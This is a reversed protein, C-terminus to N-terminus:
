TKNLRFGYMNTHIEICDIATYILREDDNMFLAVTYAKQASPM